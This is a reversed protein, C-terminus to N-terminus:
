VTMMNRITPKYVFEVANCIHNHHRWILNWMGLELPDNTVMM